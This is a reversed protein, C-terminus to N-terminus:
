RTYYKGQWTNLEELRKEIMSLVQDTRLGGWGPGANFRPPVEGSFREIMLDPRLREVLRPIFDLYEELTFLEFREPFAAYEVALDTGRVIQLQHFKVTSLPLRNIIGTQLLMQERSEGPLGLIFHAGTEIGREAALRLAEEARAFDHGRRIRKLTDDYCSELGLELKIIRNRGLEAIFDLKEEDLCDPRTGIVLGSIEPHALAQGYVEKLVELPAHTNSFAQLYALFIKPRRYRKKLFGLGEGIQQLVPKKPDCYSPNFGENNCFTCGGWGTTGDRNPCSFGANVAVKQLRGGYKRRCHDTWSNYRRSGGWEFAMKEMSTFNSSKKEDSANSALAPADGSLFATEYIDDSTQYKCVATSCCM